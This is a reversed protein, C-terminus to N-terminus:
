MSESAAHKLDEIKDRLLEVQRELASRNKRVRELIEGSASQIKEALKRVEGLGETRREIELIAETIAQWDATRHEKEQTSRICLARATMLGAKLFVDSAADEADWVVVVDDGYRGFPELGEPAIRKSFVFLGIQANRNNRAQEMEECARTLTYSFDEKAEVVINAGPAPSDVGLTVVCDGVKCNKISGVRSGTAEAQDGYHQVVRLICECVAEEFQLGHRTSKAAEERTAVLKGLSVKVEEQFKASTEAQASLITMLETKMRRLASQENDLSFEDSIRKQAADVNRVLRSLASDDEDLSFEKMVKDIKDQMEGSLRGHSKTLEGVLRSLASGEEDLSFQRLLDDRQSRLQRDVMQRLAALVGQSEDPSLVKMLPSNEGVHEVLTKALTSQEGGIQRRLVEELEGDRRVLREVRQPFHGDQPDFYKKLEATLQDQMQRGHQGLQRDLSDIMRASERQILDADIRQGAHRLALVGIKLASLAYDERDTEEGHQCLAEVIERDKVTLELVLQLPLDDTSAHLVDVDLESGVDSLPEAVDAM